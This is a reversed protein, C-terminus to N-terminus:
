KKEIIELDVDVSSSIVNVSFMKDTETKFYFRDGQIVEIKLSDFIGNDNASLGKIGKFDLIARDGFNDKATILVEGQFISTPSLFSISVELPFQSTESINEPVLKILEQIKQNSSELEKSISDNKFEYKKNSEFLQLKELDFQAKGNQYGFYYAGGVITLCIPIFIGWNIRNWLSKSKRLATNEQTLQDIRSNDQVTIIKEIVQPKPTKQPKENQELKLEEIRTDLFNILEQQGKSWSDRYPQEGMGSVFFSPKFKIFDIESSYTFKTPFLKEVYMKTKRLIDDLEKEDKYRLREARTKLESLKETM